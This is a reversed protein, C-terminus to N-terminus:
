EQDVLFMPWFLVHFVFSWFVYRFYKRQHIRTSIVVGVIIWILITVPLIKEM